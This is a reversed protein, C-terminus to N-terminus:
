EDSKRLSSQKSLFPYKYFNLMKGAVKEINRIDSKSLNRFSRENMNKITSNKEHIKWTKDTNWNIIKNAKIFDLIDKTVQFPSECLDEYFVKKIKKIKKSDKEIIQNSVVWQKACMYIPYTPAYGQNIGYKSLPAKRRIGEAVAYGNRIIHIFYSNKFNEQLWLMRASNVISKEVFISKRLNLFLAWDNKVTDVDINHDKDTLRVQEAVKYWMRTWGLEEPTILHDTVFVGEKIVSINPHNSLITELLTTGSNYCGVIFVWKEPNPKPTFYRLIRAFNEIRHPKTLFHFKMKKIALDPHLFYEKKFNKKMFNTLDKKM